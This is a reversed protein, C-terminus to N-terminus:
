TTKKTPRTPIPKRPTIVPFTNKTTTTRTPAPKQSTTTPTTPKRTTTTKPTSRPMPPPQTTPPTKGTPKVFTTKPVYTLAKQMAPRWIGYGAERSSSGSLYGRATKAGRLTWAVSGTRSRSKRSRSDKKDVTIMAAGVLNPTYGIMWVTPSNTDTGTKGALDYGALRSSSATGGPKFAGHLVDNARDAVEQSVVQTCNASPVALMKGDKTTVSKIIIPDCRKGRAALTAYANALSIPTIDATGLTFSPNDSRMPTIQGAPLTGDPLLGTTMDAGDARKLGLRQAMKVVNCLGADRELQVFFTNSSVRAADYMNYSGETGTSVPRNWGGRVYGQCGLFQTKSFDMSKPSNYRQFPSIGQELAAAVTFAKFTSGGFVGEAGGLESGVGYNWFTEGAAVNTGLKYRSQAMGKILGTGPEIMTMTAIVPDTPKIFNTVAAQAADQTRPDIQTQITLGTRYLNNRRIEANEGLSPTQTLLVREVMDCLHPYRSAACGRTPNPVVKSQDFKVKKAEAAQTRTIANVDPDSMRDLVHNRREIAVKEHKVPDSTSPNRVLGALMAAEELKLESASKGFYHRSAAEVGYAGDGFYSINLYRELIEDKSVQQELAIAYRLEIVKRAVTRQRAEAQAEEDGSSMAQDLLVLKVYQQTLTSGGQTNGASTRVLARLTGRLDLAGHDYFRTDEIAIIADRMVPAIKDISVYIRNEDYFRTLESGDAMLVRSGESQPPAELEQPLKELAIAMAKSAEAVVGATPVVLGAALVGGLVSVLVFMLMSYLRHSIQGSRM